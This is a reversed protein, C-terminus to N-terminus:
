LIGPWAPIKLKGETPFYSEVAKGFTECSRINKHRKDGNSMNWAIAYAVMTRQMAEANGARYRSKAEITEVVYQRAYIWHKHKAGNEWKPLDVEQAAGLYELVSYMLQPNSSKWQSLMWTIWSKSGANGNLRRNAIQSLIHNHDQRLKRMDEAVGSNILWRSIEGDGPNHEPTRLPHSDPNHQARYEFRGASSVDNVYKTAGAGGGCITLFDAVTRQSGTDLTLFSTADMGCMITVEVPKGGAALHNRIAQTRHQGDVMVFGKGDSSRSIKITEGNNADWTGDALANELRQLNVGKRGRNSISNQEFSGGGAAKINMNLFYDCVEVSDLIVKFVELPSIDLSPQAGTENKIAQILGRKMPVVKKKANAM